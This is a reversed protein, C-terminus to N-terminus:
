ASCLSGGFLSSSAFLALPAFSAFVKQPEQGEQRKQKVQEM